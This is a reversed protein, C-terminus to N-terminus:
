LAMLVNRGTFALKLQRLLTLQKNEDNGSIVLSTYTRMSLLLNAQQKYQVLTAPAINTMKRRRQRVIPVTRWGFPLLPMYRFFHDWGM